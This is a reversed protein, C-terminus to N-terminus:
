LEENQQELTIIDTPIAGYARLAYAKKPWSMQIIISTQLPFSSGWIHVYHSQIDFKVFIM